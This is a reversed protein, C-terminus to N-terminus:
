KVEKLSALATATVQASLHARGRWWGIGFAALICVYGIYTDM